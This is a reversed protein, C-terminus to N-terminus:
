QDGWMLRKFAERAQNPVVSNGLCKIRDVRCPGMTKEREIEGIRELLRALLDQEENFPKSCFEEWMDRLGEDGEVWAGLDRGAQTGRCPVEPLSDVGYENFLRSPTESARGNFWVSRMKKRIACFGETVAKQNETEIAYLLGNWLQRIEVLEKPIGHAV